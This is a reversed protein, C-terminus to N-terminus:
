KRKKEGPKREPHFYVILLLVITLFVVFFGEARHRRLTVNEDFFYLIFNRLTVMLLSGVFLYAAAFTTNKSFWVRFQKLFNFM